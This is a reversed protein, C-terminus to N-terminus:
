LVLGVSEWYELWQSVDKEGLQTLREDGLVGSAKVARAVDLIPMGFAECDKQDAKKGANKYFDLLTVANLSEFAPGTSSEELLRLWETYSVLSLGLKQSFSRALSTWPVPNPHVLHFITPTQSSDRPADLLDVVVKGAVDLPIWSVVRDDYPICKMLASAHVLSPLWEKTTWSGNPGGSLQGVRIISARLGASSAARAIIQEAVWKSESYGNGLSADSPMLEEHAGP